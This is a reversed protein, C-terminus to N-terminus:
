LAWIQYSPVDWPYVDGPVLTLTMQLPWPWLDSIPTEPAYTNWLCMKYELIQLYSHLVIGSQSFWPKALWFNHQM